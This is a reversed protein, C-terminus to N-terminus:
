NILANLKKFREKLIKIILEKRQLTLRSAQVNKNLKSDIHMVLDELAGESYEKCINMWIGRLIDVNQEKICEALEIFKLQQEKWRIESKGKLIYSLIKDDTFKHIDEERIERGLCCGSDFIPSFTYTKNHLIKPTDDSDSKNKTVTMIKDWLKKSLTVRSNPNQEDVELEHKERKIFAWNETHRDTNGILCDFIIMKNFNVMLENFESVKCLDELNQYNFVPKESLIFTPLHDKLIEVGHYLSEGKELNVMRKSLCGIQQNQLAINYDLIEFRLMQGYKSAIIESWFENPYREASQKFFFVEHTDPNELIKLPRSGKSPSEWTKENWNSINIFDAGGM